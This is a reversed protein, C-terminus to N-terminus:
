HPSSHSVPAVWTPTLPWSPPETCPWTTLATTAVRCVACCAPLPYKLLHMVEWLRSILLSTFATAQTGTTHPKTHVKPHPNIPPSLAVLEDAAQHDCVTICEGLM